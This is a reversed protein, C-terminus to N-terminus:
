RNGNEGVPRVSFVARGEAIITDPANTAYVSVHLVAVRNGMRNVRAEALLEEPPGPNMFDVRIDVTSTRVPEDFYALVATGAAADILTSLIGGHLAPRRPDGIFQKRFPLALLARGKELERVQVGLLRNFPVLEEMMMTVQAFRDQM